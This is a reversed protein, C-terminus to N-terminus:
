GIKSDILRTLKVDLMNFWILLRQGISVDTLTITFEQSSEFEKGASDRHSVTLNFKNEGIKLDGGEFLLKMEYDRDISPLNWTKKILDHNLTVTVNKPVNVSDKQLMFTIAGADKFTMNEPFTLNLAKVSPEDDVAIIIYAKKSATSGDASFLITRVGIKQFALVQSFLREEGPKLNIATCNRDLCTRLNLAAQATSRLTCDLSVLENIYVYDKSALCSADLYKSYPKEAVNAEPMLSRMYSESYVRDRSSSKFESDALVTSGDYIRVPFTYIYDGKLLDSVKVLWYIEKKGGPALVFEAKNSGFIQVESVNSLYISGTVYYGKKNELSAKVLNYSGFGVANESVIVKATFPSPLTYDKSLVGVSFELNKAKLEVGQSVISYEVSTEKADHSTKLKIHTADVYGLEKYTVDFPVWGYEPFYVEAWGHAGWGDNEKNINSYSIGSVFRAPLGVSRAMSIFLSTLEDCVGIRNKLVWSAKQSADATTTSLDYKVNEEVWQALKVAVVYSDDEGDALRFALAKIDSNVDIIEGPKLYQSLEPNVNQLPFPVKKKVQVFDGGTKIRSSQQLAYNLGTPRTWLFAFGSGEDYDSSPDTTIFEIEQRGDDLPYWHLFATLKQVEYSTSRPLLEIRNKIVLNLTLSNYDFWEQGASAFSSLLIIASLFIVIRVKM